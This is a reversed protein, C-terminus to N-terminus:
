AKRNGSHLDLEAATRAHNDILIDKVHDGQRGDAQRIAITRHTTVIHATAKLRMGYAALTRCQDTTEKPPNAINRCNPQTAHTPASPHNAAQACDGVL